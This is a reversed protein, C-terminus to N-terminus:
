EGLIDNNLDTLFNKYKEIIYLNKVELKRVEEEKSSVESELNKVNSNLIAISNTFACTLSLAYDKIERLEELTYGM